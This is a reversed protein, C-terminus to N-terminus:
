CHDTIPTGKGTELKLNCANGRSREPRGVIISRAISASLFLPSCLLGQKKHKFDCRKKPNCQLNLNRTLYLSTCCVMM